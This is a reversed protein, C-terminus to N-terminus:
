YIYKIGVNVTLSRADTPANIVMVRLPKDAKVITSSVTHLRNDMIANGKITVSESIDVWEGETHQQMKFVVDESSTQGLFAKISTIEAKMPLPIIADQGGTIIEGPCVFIVNRVNSDEWDSTLKRLDKESALKINEEGNGVYLQEEDTTFALESVQLVPLNEKLGRKHLINGM